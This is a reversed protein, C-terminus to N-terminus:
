LEDRLLAEDEDEEPQIFVTVVRELLKEPLKRIDKATLYNKKKLDLQRFAAHPTQEKRRSVDNQVKEFYPFFRERPLKGDDRLLSLLHHRLVEPNTLFDTTNIVREGEENLKWVFQLDKLTIPETVNLEACGTDNFSKRPTWLTSVSLSRGYSRVQHLHGAPIFICDGPWLSTWKWGTKGIKPYKYVNVMEADVKSYGHGGFKDVEMDFRDSYKPDYMIFDKRGDIVCHLNHDADYHLHSSTGGSSMWMEAEQLYEKFTGCQLSPVVPIGHLIEDPIPSVLYWDELNYRLLFRKFTMIKPEIIKGPKKTTVEINIAGYHQKLFKDDWKTFCESSTNFAGRMVLPKKTKVSEKWFTKPDPVITVETIKGEPARQWGLPRLHGMSMGQITSARLKPPFVFDTSVDKPFLIDSHVVHSTTWMITLWLVCRSTM